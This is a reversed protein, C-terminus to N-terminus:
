LTQDSRVPHPDGTALRQPVRASQGYAGPLARGLISEAVAVRHSILVQGILERACEHGRSHRASAGFPPSHHEVGLQSPLSHPVIPSRHPTQPTAIRRSTRRLSPASGVDAHNSTAHNPTHPQASRLHIHREVLPSGGQSSIPPDRSDSGCHVGTSRSL